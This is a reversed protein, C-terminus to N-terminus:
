ESTVRPNRHRMQAGKSRHRRGVAKNMERSVRAVFNIVAIVATAM